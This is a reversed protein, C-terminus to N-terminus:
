PSSLVETTSGCHKEDRGNRDAKIEIQGCLTLRSLPLGADLGAMDAKGQNRGFEVGDRFSTTHWFAVNSRQSPISM